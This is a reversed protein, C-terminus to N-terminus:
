LWETRHGPYDFRYPAAVMRLTRCPYATGSACEGCVLLREPAHEAAPGPGSKHVIIEKPGHWTM